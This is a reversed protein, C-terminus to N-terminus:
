SARRQEDARDREDHPRAEGVEVDDRVLALAVDLRQDEARHQEVRRHHERREADHAVQEGRLARDGLARELAHPADLQLEADLRRVVLGARLRGPVGFVVPASAPAAVPLVSSRSASRSHGRRGRGHGDVGLARDGAVGVVLVARRVRDHPPEHAGELAREVLEERLGVRLRQEVDAAALAHQRVLPRLAEAVAADDADVEVVRQQVGLPLLALRRVEGVLDHLGLVQREGVALEVDRRAISTSSCTGSGACVTASIARTALPWRSTETGRSGSHRPSFM